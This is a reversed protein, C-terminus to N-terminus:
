DNQVRLREVLVIECAGDGSDNRVRSTAWIFGDEDKIDVLYGVLEVVDGKKVNALANAIEETNPVLHLNTSNLELENRPLPFESVNWYYFRNNQRVNIDKIISPDSMPGWGVVMDYPAIDAREDALYHRKSLVLGTIKFEDSYGIEYKNRKHWTYEALAKQYPSQHVRIGSPMASFLTHHSHNKRADIQLSFDIVEQNKKAPNTDIAEAHVKTICALLLPVCRYKM